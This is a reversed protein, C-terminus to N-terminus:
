PLLLARHEASRYLLLGYRPSFYATDKEYVGGISQWVDTYTEGNPSIWEPIMRSTEYTRFFTGWIWEKNFYNMCVEVDNVNGETYKKRYEVRAEENDLILSLWVEADCMGTTAPRVHKESFEPSKVNFVITDNDFIYCLTQGIFDVPLYDTEDPSFAPCYETKDKCSTLIVMLGIAIALLSGNQYASLLRWARKLTHRPSFHHRSFSRYKKM